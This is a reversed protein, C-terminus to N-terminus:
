CAPVDPEASGVERAKRDGTNVRQPERQKHMSLPQRWGLEFTVKELILERFRNM